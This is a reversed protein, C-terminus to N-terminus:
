PRLIIVECNALIAVAGVLSDNLFSNPSNLRRNVEKVAETQNFVAEHFGEEATMLTKNRGGLVLNLAVLSLTAHLLAGDTKAFDFFSGQPNIAFSNQTFGRHDPIILADTQCKRNM